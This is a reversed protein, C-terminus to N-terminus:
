GLMALLQADTMDTIDVLESTALTEHIEMFRVLQQHDVLGAEQALEAPISNAFAAKSIIDTM